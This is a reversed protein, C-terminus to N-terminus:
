FPRSCSDRCHLCTLNSPCQRSAQPLVPYLKDLISFSAPNSSFRLHSPRRLLARGLDLPSRKSISRGIAKDEKKYLFLAHRLRSILSMSQSRQSRTQRIMLERFDM